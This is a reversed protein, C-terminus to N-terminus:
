KYKWVNYPNCSSKPILDSNHLSRPPISVYQPLCSCSTLIHNGLVDIGESGPICQVGIIFCRVPSVQYGDLCHQTVSMESDLLTNEGLALAWLTLEVYYALFFFNPLSLSKCTPVAKGPTFWPYTEMGRLRSRDCVGFRNVQVLVPPFQFWCCGARSCFLSDTHTVM